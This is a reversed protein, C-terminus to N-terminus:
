DAPSLRAAGSVRPRTVIPEKDEPETVPLQSSRALFECLGTELDKGRHQVIVIPLPFEAPLGSLLMQLAKLGGTSAGVVILSRLLKSDM